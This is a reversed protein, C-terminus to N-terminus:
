EPFPSSIGKVRPHRYRHLEVKSEPIPGRRVQMGSPHILEPHSADRPTNIAYVKWTEASHIAKTVRGEMHKMMQLNTPQNGIMYIFQSVKQISIRVIPGKPFFPVVEVIIGQPTEL